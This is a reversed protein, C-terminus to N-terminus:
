SFYLDSEAKRRVTLGKLVKGGGKNWKAFELAISPDNPNANVKKLLTSKRLNECGCNYAFSVLASFQNENVLDTTISDVRKEFDVLLALLLQSAQGESIKDGMSVRKGDAYFTAGYGITHIGAPCKYATAEFGEFKKILNLGQNNIKM